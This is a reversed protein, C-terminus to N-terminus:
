RAEHQAKTHAKNQLWQKDERLTRVTRRPVATARKLTSIGKQIFIYGVVAVIFGVILPAVWLAHIQEMGGEMLAVMLGFSAALLLVLFGAYAIFGGIAIYIANRSWKAVKSTMEAKFLELQQKMLLTADDRLDSVIQSIPRGNRARTRGTERYEHSAGYPDYGRRSRPEDAVRVEYEEYEYDRREHIM